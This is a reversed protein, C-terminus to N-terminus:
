YTYLLDDSVYLHNRDNMVSAKSKKFQNVKLSDRGLFQRFLGVPVVLFFYIIGMIIRLSVASIIKSLGYWLIALPYFAIPAIITILTLIFAGIVFHNQKLYLALFIAVLITVQGFETSQKKSIRTFIKEM